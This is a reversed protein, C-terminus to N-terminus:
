EEIINKEDLLSKREKLSDLIKKNKILEVKTESLKVISKKVPEDGTKMGKVGLRDRGFPSDQTNINTAKEIPRGKDGDPKPTPNSNDAYRGKGYNASLAHPTGYSKGTELPDNGEETIQTLRFKRKADEIM